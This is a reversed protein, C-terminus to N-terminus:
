GQGFASNFAAVVGGAVEQRRGSFAHDAGEIIYTEASGGAKRWQHATEDAWEPLAVDDDAGHVLILPETARDFFTLPSVDEWYEPNEEPSEMESSEDEGEFSAAVGALDTTPASMAIVLDSLGPAVVAADIALLGGLSHGLLGVREPDAGPIQGDRALRLGNVVDLAMGWDLVTAWGFGPDVSPNAEADAADSSGYGRMDLAFVVYGASLLARQEPVLDTGPEYEAPDVSGHVVVVVPAGQVVGDPTRVVGGVRVGGSEYFVEVASEGALADVDEGTLLEPSEAPSDIITRL